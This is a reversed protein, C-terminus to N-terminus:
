LLCEISDIVDRLRILVTLTYSKLEGDDDIITVVGHTNIVGIREDVNSPIGLYINFREDQELVNDDQILVRM